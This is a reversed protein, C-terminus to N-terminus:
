RTVVPICDANEAKLASCLRRADSLDAFGEARLRYFTRGGSTAKQVVRNKDGLYDGFKGQLRQWENRAVDASPYAGLQVLRTGAPIAASDIERPGTAVPAPAAAAAARNRAALGEPRLKPRKSVGIGGKVIKPKPAEELAAVEALPQVNETLEKVLGDLAGPDLPKPATIPEPTQAIEQQVPAVPEAETPDIRALTVPADEEDLRIPAPALVLRDAPAGATGDAAVTNVSLGQHAAQSGGPDAPQERMPGEIARVVPIGTVDRVLLKYGWVGAGVILALSVAAGAWNALNGMTKRPDFAVDGQPHATGPRTGPQNLPIQVM